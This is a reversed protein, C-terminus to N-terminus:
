NQRLREKYRDETWDSALKHRQYLRKFAHFTVKGGEPDPQGEADCLAGTPLREGFVLRLAHRAPGADLLKTRDTM